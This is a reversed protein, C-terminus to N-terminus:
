CEIATVFSGPIGILQFVMEPTLIYCKEEYSLQLHKEGPISGASLYEVMLNTSGPSSESVASSIHCVFSGTKINRNRCQGTFLEGLSCSVLGTFLEGLPCWSVAVLTM